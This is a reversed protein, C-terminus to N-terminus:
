RKRSASKGRERIMKLPEDGGYASMAQTKKPPAAGLVGALPNAGKPIGNLFHDTKGEAAFLLTQVRRIIRAPSKGKKLINELEGREDVTLHVSSKKNM